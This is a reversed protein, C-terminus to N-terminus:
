NSPKCLLVCQFLSRYVYDPVNERKTGLSRSTLLAPPRKPRESVPTTPPSNEEDEEKELLFDNEESGWM